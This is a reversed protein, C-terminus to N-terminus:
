QYAVECDELEYDYENEFEEKAKDFAMEEIESIMRLPLADIDIGKSIDDMFMLSSIQVEDDAGGDEAEGNRILPPRSFDVDADVQLFCEFGQATFVPYQFRVKHAM